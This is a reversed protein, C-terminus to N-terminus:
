AENVNINVIPVKTDAMHEGKMPLSNLLTLALIKNM